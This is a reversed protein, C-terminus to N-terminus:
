LAHAARAPGSARKHRPSGCLRRRDQGMPPQPWAAGLRLSGLCM